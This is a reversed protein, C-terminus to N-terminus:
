RAPAVDPCSALAVLAQRRDTGGSMRGVLEGDRGLVLTTPTRLVSFRRVLDLHEAADLEVHVVGDHDAAVASLVQRTGRCASCVESSFQVFTAREGLPTGLDAVGLVERPEAAPAADAPEAPVAAAAHFQGNRRRWVLGLVTALVVVLAVLAVGTM